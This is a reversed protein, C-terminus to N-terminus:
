SHAQARVPKFSAKQLRPDILEAIRAWTTPDTAILAALETRSLELGRDVLGLLVREPDALFEDRFQEDTILRGILVEVTRQAVTWWGERSSLAVDPGRAPRPM